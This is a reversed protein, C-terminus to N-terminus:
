RGAASQDAPSDLDGKFLDYLLLAIELTLIVKHNHIDLSGLKDIRELRYYLSNRHISLRKAVDGQMFPTKLWEVLTARLDETWEPSNLLAGLTNDIYQKVEASSISFLLDELAFDRIYYISEQPHVLKGIRLATWAKDVAAKIELMSNTSFGVGIVFSMHKDNIKKKLM